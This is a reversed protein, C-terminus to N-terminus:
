KKRGSPYIYEEVQRIADPSIKINLPFEFGNLMVDPNKFGTATVVIVVVEDKDIDGSELLKEFGAVAVASSPEVFIGEKKALLREANLIADDSVTTATGGSERVTKLSLPAYDDYKSLIGDAISEGVDIVPEVKDRNNKVANALPSGAEVQIATMRPLSDIWGLDYLEKFGKWQGALNGGSGTPVIVRDPAKWNLDMCLEYAITKDGELRYPNYGHGTIYWGHKVGMELGLNNIDEYHANMGILGTPNFAAYGAVKGRPAYDVPVFCYADMNAANSYAAVACGANGTSTITVEKVGLEKGMSIIVSTERDKFAGTPNMGENKVYLNKVGTLSSLNRARILPTGGEGLSVINRSDKLPLFEKFRWLSREQRAALIEKTLSFDTYDYEVEQLGIVVRLPGVHEEGCDECVFPGKSIPFTKLCNICKLHTAYM